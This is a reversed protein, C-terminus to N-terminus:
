EQLMIVKKENFFKSKGKLDIKLGQGQPQGQQVLPSPTTAQPNTVMEEGRKSEDIASSLRSTQQKFSFRQESLM